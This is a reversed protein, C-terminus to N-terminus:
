RSCCEFGHIELFKQKFVEHAEDETEYRGLNKVKGNINIQAQFKKRQKHYNVGRKYKGYNKKNLMNEQHSVWRLNSISNNLKDGDRHDIYPKNDPNPIFYIAILRHILFFKQEGKKCLSLFLYGKNNKTPKLIRINGNKYYRKIDGNNSIEYINEYDKIWCWDM